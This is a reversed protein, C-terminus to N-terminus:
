TKGEPNGKVRPSLNGGTIVIRPSADPGAAVRACAGAEAAAGAQMGAQNHEPNDM